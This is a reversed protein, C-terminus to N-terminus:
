AVPPETKIKDTAAKIIKPIQNQIEQAIHNRLEGQISALVQAGNLIVEVKGNTNINITEPIKISAFKDAAANIARAFDQFAQMNINSAGVGGGNQQRAEREQKIGKAFDRPRTQDPRSGPAVTAGGNRFIKSDLQVGPGSENPRVIRGSEGSEYRRKREDRDIKRQNAIEEKRQKYQKAKEKQQDIYRQKGNERRKQQSTRTDEGEVPKSISGKPGTPGIGKPQYVGFGKNPTFPKKGYKDKAQRQREKQQKARERMEDIKDQQAKQREKQEKEKRNRENRRKVFEALEDNEKKTRGFKDVAGGSAMLAFNGNNIAHLIGKNKRASQANVVFEGPTLMAPVTDTGIARPRAYGGSALGQPQGDNNQVAGVNVNAVQANVNAVQPKSNLGAQAIEQAQQQQKIKFDILAQNFDKISQVAVERQTIEDEIQMM